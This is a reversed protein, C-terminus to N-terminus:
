LANACTVNRATTCHAVGLIVRQKLVMGKVQMQGIAFFVCVGSDNAKPLMVIACMMVSTLMCLIICNDAGITHLLNRCHGLSNLYIHFLSLSGFM